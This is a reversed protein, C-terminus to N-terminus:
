IVGMIIITSDVKLQGNFLGSKVLPDNIEYKM